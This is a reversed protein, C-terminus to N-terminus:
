GISSSKVLLGRRERSVEKVGGEGGEGNTETEREKELAAPRPRPVAVLLDSTDDEPSCGCCGSTGAGALAGASASSILALWADWRTFLCMTSGNIGGFNALASELVRSLGDSYRFLMQLTDDLFLRDFALDTIRGIACRRSREREKERLAITPELPSCEERKFLGIEFQRTSHELRARKASIRFLPVPSHPNSRKVNSLFHHNTFDVQLAANTTNARNSLSCARVM